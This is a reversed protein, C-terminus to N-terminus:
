PVAGALVWASFGGFGWAWAPGNFIDSGAMTIAAFFFCVAAILLLLRSVYWPSRQPAAPQTM